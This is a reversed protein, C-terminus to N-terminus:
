EPCSGWAGLMALFDVVNVVGDSPDACNCPGAGGWDALLALFDVVNVTGDPPLACDCPCLSSTGQYEYAGMDVIPPDGYGTDVTDPDDVFRPKGDFDTDIGEPVATNDASDICPSGPSLRLDGNDPDVFLPDADINGDGWYLTFGAQVFVGQEGGQVDCHSVTMDAPHIGKLAIEPGAPSANGWLICNTMVTLGIAGPTDSGASIAGGFPSSNDTFTCNTFTPSSWKGSRVGGGMDGATNGEFHCNIVRANAFHRLNLGGGVHGAENGTFTCGTILPMSDFYQMGGGNLGASNGTFVCDTITPHSESNSLMGGGNGEAAVNAIFMCRALIPHSANRNFMGGGAVRAYNGTVTCNTFTPSGSDNWIGAGARHNVDSNNPGDARGDTITFGDLVASTDTGSATVVNYSNDVDRGPHGINGSLITEYLVVDWADPNAEGPGAYGGLLGVGNLLQFTALRDGTGLPVAEDADPVYIGQAVRIETVAGGSAAADVLADQLFRYATNWDLGDGAAAADDDVYRVQAGATSSATVVGLLVMLRIQIM